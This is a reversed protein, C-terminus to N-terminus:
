PVPPSSLDAPAAEGPRPRGDGAGIRPDRWLGILRKRYDITVLFRSLIRNGIRARHVNAFQVDVEGFDTGAVSLTVTGRRPTGPLVLTDPSATDVVADINRGDVVVGIAPEDPYRFQTMLERDVYGRHITVLGAHYDISIVNRRWGAAGIMGEAVGALDRRAVAVHLTDREGLQLTHRRGHLPFSDDVVVNPSATALIFRGPEGDITVSSLEILNRELSFALNTEPADAGRSLLRACSLSCLALTVATARVGSKSLM